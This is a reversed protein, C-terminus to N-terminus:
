IHSGGQRARDGDLFLRGHEHVYCFEDPRALRLRYYVRKSRRRLSPTPKGSRSPSSDSSLPIESVKEHWSIRRNLYTEVHDTLDIIILLIPFGLATVSFIKWFESFVYRDLPRVFHKMM